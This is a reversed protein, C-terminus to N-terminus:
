RRVATYMQLEEPPSVSPAARKPLARPPPARLRPTGLQSKPPSARSQVYASWQPRCLVIHAIHWEQLRRSPHHTCIGSKPPSAWSGVKATRNAAIRPYVACMPLEKPPPAAPHRKSMGGKPHRRVALLYIVDQPARGIQAGKSAVGASSAMTCNKHLRRWFMIRVCAVRQFQRLTLTRAWAAKPHSLVATCM